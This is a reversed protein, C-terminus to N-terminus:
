RGRDFLILFKKSIKIKRFPRRFIHARSKRRCCFLSSKVKALGRTIKEDKFHTESKGIRLHSSLHRPQAHIKNAFTRQGIWLFNCFLLSSEFSMISVFHVIITVTLPEGRIWLSWIPSNKFPIPCCIEKWFYGLIIAM